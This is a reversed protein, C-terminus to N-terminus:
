FNCVRWGPPKCDLSDNMSDAIDLRHPAVTRWPVILSLETFIAMEPFSLPVDSDRSDTSNREFVRWVRM